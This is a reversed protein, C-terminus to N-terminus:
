RASIPESIVGHSIEYIKNCMDKTATDHTVIICIKDKAIKKIATHLNDISAVDLNSTPEDFILIPKNTFLARAIAVRQGQGSSLANDGEGIITDYGNPLTLIFEHIGAAEAAKQVQVSDFNKESMAINESISANFVYNDSPVYAIYSLLNRTKENNLLVSGSSPEYLGMIIKALTSKGSGSKGIIGVVDGTKAELNAKKLIEDKDYSFSIDQVLISSVDKIKEDSIESIVAPTDTIERIRKASTGADVFSSIYQSIQMFPLAVNGMLSSIGVLTGVTIVGEMIFIAGVGYTIFILGFNFLTNINSNLSAIVTKRLALKARRIYLFNHKEVIFDLMKYSKFLLNKTVGEQLNRRVDDESSKVAQMARMMPPAFAKMALIMVPIIISMILGLQWNLVFIFVMSGISLALSALMNDAAESVTDAISYTDDSIIRMIESSHKKQRELHPLEYFKRLIYSRLDRYMNIMIIQSLIGRIFMTICMVILILGAFLMVNYIIGDQVGIAIDIITIIIQSVYLRTAVTVLSILALIILTGKIAKTQKLIWGLQRQQKEKKM